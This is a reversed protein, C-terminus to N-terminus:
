ESNPMSVSNQPIIYISYLDFNVLRGSPYMYKLVRLIEIDSAQMLNGSRPYCYSIMAQTESNNLKCTKLWFWFFNKESSNRLWWINRNMLNLFVWLDGRPNEIYQLYEPRYMGKYNARPWSLYRVTPHFFLQPSLYIEIPITSILNLKEAVKVEAKCFGFESDSEPPLQNVANSYTYFYNSINLIASLGLVVIAIFYRYRFKNRIFNWSEDLAIAILLFMGACAGLTRLNAPAQIPVSLLGPILMGLYFVIGTFCVAAKLHRLAVAFGIGFLFSGILSVPPRGILGHRLIPDGGTIPLLFYKHFNYFINTLVNGPASFVSTLLIRSSFQEPNASFHYALPIGSLFLGLLFFSLSAIMQRIRLNKSIVFDHLIVLILLLPFIRYAIYSYLGVGSILGLSLMFPFSHHRRKSWEFVLLSLLIFFPVLIGRFALRSFHLHWFSFCSLIATSFAITEKFHFRLVLYVLLCTSAGIVCSVFRLSFTTYGFFHCSLAILYKFLPEQGCNSPFIVPHFANELIQIADLGHNAEDFWLPPPFASIGILRILIAASLILVVHLITWYSFSNRFGEFRNIRSPKSCIILLVAMLSSFFTVFHRKLGIPIDSSGFATVICAFLLILLGALYSFNIRKLDM